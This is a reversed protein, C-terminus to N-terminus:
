VVEINCSIPGVREIWNYQYDRTNEQELLYVKFEEKYIDWDEEMEHSTKNKIFGSKEYVLYAVAWLM